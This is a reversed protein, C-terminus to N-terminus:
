TINKEGPISVYEKELKKLRKPYVKPTLFTISRLLLLCNGKMEGDFPSQAVLM